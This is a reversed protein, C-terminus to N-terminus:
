GDHGWRRHATQKPVGLAKGIDDWSAGDRRAESVMAKEYLRLATRTPDLLRLMGLPGVRARYDEDVISNLYSTLAAGPDTTEPNSM